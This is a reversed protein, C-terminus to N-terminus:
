TGVPRLKRIVDLLAYYDSQQAITEIFWEMAYCESAPKQVTLLQSGAFL